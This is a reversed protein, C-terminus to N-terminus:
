VFNEMDLNDPGLGFQANSPLKKMNFIELADNVVM